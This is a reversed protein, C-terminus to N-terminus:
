LKRYNRELFLEDKSKRKLEYKIDDNLVFGMKTLYNHASTESPKIIVFPGIKVVYKFARLKGYKTKTKLHDHLPEYLEITAIM